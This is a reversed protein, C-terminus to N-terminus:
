QLSLRRVMPPSADGYALDRLLSRVAAGGGQGRYPDLINHPLRLSDPLEFVSVASGRRRWNSALAEAASENVTRDSANVLVVIAHTHAAERSSQGLVWEGLELMEAIARSNLGPERDPRAADPPSDRTMSPLRDALGILPRDLISPIRGPEIAPAILVVRTVSHQQAIWAAVVGGMSLGMVIVSDGLGRAERVVSDAVGELQAATLAGLASADMGRLGHQPLRPVYVNNGDGHLLYGLAEFQRPSDTLGHLLVIVRATPAGNTLLISRAGPDAIRDDVAQRRAVAAVAASYAPTVKQARLPPALGGVAALISAAGIM